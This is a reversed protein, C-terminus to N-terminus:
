PAAAAPEPEPQVDGDADVHVHVITSTAAGDPAPAPPSRRLEIAALAISNWGTSPKRVVRQELKWAAVPRKFCFM